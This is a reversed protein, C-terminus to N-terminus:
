RRRRSVLLGGLGVLALAGPAPVVTFFQNGDINEFNVFSPDAINGWGDPLSGLIQNSVYDHGSGNIFACVRVSSAGDLWSLPVILEVGTTASLAGADPSGTFSGVGLVNSNNIAVQLGASNTGGTLGANAGAPITGLYDGPGGGGPLLVAGNAYMAYPGGGGTLGIWHSAQFGADFTLGAMRNLGNFDVGANDGRLTHQGPAGTDFFLELKNFNSELNGTLMLHLAGGSIYGFAADLESGNAYDIQGMNADGFATGNRQVALPAGYSGDLVGDQACALGAMGALAAVFVVSKM